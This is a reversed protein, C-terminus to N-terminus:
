FGCLRADVVDIPFCFYGELFCGGAKCISIARVQGTEDRVEWGVNVCDAARCTSDFFMGDVVQSWGNYLCDRVGLINKCKLIKFPKTAGVNLQTEEFGITFCDGIPGEDEEGKARGKGGGVSDQCVARTVFGSGNVRLWGGTECSPSRCSIHNITFNLLDLEEWGTALCDPSFCTVDVESQAQAPFSYTTYLLTLTGIIIKRILAHKVVGRM